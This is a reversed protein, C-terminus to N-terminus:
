IQHVDWLVLYCGTKLFIRVLGLRALFRLVRFLPLLHFVLLDHDTIIWCGIFEFGSFIRVVLDVNGLSIEDPITCDQEVRVVSPWLTLSLGKPPFHPATGQSVLALDFRHCSGGDV